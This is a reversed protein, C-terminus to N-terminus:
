AQIAYTASMTSPDLDGPDENDDDRASAAVSTLRRMQRGENRSARKARLVDRAQSCAFNPPPGPCDLVAHGKQGCWLCCVSEVRARDGRSDRPAPSVDARRSHLAELIKALLANTDITAAPSPPPVAPHQLLRAVPQKAAEFAELAFVLDATSM